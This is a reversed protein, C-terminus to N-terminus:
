AHDQYCVEIEKFRTKNQNKLVEITLHDNNLLEHM